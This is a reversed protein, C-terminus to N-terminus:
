VALDRVLRRALAEVVARERAIRRFDREVLFRGDARGILELQDALPYRPEVRRELDVTRGLEGDIRLYRAHDIGRDGGTRHEAAFELTDIVGRCFAAATHQLHDLEVVGNGNNGVAEPTCLFRERQKLRFPVDALGATRVARLEGLKISVREIARHHARAIVAIDVISKAFAALDNLRYVFRWMKSMCLHLWEVGGNM